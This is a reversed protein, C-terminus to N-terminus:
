DLDVTDDDDSMAASRKMNQLEKLADESRVFHAGARILVISVNDPGGQENVETVLQNVAEGLDSQHKSVIEEIRTDSLVDNLGDSCLLFIDKDKVSEINIEPDADQDVGLARTVLNKNLSSRAEEQSMLGRNVLEQVMSHDETLLTLKGSRYRYLRSDGLHGVCIKDKYFVTAVVTAGM